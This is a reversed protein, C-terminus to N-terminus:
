LSLYFIRTSQRLFRQSFVISLFRRFFSIVIKKSNGISCKSKCKTWDGNGKTTLCWLIGNNDEATCEHYTKGRYAFPFQCKRDYGVNPDCKSNLADTIIM